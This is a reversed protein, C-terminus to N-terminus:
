RGMSFFAPKRRESRVNGCVIEKGGERGGIGCGNIWKQWNGRVSTQLPKEQAYNHLGIRLLENQYHIKQPVIKTEEGTTLFQGHSPVNSLWGAWDLGGRIGPM